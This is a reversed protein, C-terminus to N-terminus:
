AGGEPGGRAPTGGEDAAAEAAAWEHALRAERSVWRWANFCGLCLGAVLLALTWSRGDPHRRDLWLGVAAGALAPLAVSWGVLGMVGLGSLASAGRHRRARLKRATSTGVGRVFPPEDRSPDAM